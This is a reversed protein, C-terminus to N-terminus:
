RDFLARGNLIRWPLLLGSRQKYALWGPHRSISADKVLMRPLFLLFFQATVVLWGLWHAALLAYSCYIMVEGLYNPNRTYAFVGNTILGKSYRMICNKQLDAAAMWSVGLTHIAIAAFLTAGSPAIHRSMFLWPLSWYAANLGVYLVCLAGITIRKSFAGNPFALDKVLWTYGYTGHLALYVWAGLSFNDYWYMLGLIFLVTCVKQGNIAQDLRLLRPGGGIEQVLYNSKNFLWQALPHAKAQVAATTPEM